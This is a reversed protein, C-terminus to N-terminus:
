RKRLEVGEPMKKRLMEVDPELPLWRPLQAHWYIADPRLHGSDWLHLIIPLEYPGVTAHEAGEGHACTILGMARRLDPAPGAEARDLYGGGNEAFPSQTILDLRSPTFTASASRPSAAHSPPLPPPCGSAETATTEGFGSASRDMAPTALAPHIPRGGAGGGVDPMHFTPSWASRGDKHKNTAFILLLAGALLPVILYFFGPEPVLPIGFLLAPWPHWGLHQLRRAITPMLAVCWMGWVMWVLTKQFLIGEAWAALGLTVAIQFWLGFLCAAYANRGLTYPKRLVQRDKRRFIVVQLVLGLLPPLFLTLM